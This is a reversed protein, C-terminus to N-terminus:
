SERKPSDCSMLHSLDWTRTRAVAQEKAKQLSRRTNPTTTPVLSHLLAKSMMPHVSFALLLVVTSVDVPDRLQGPLAALGDFAALTTYMKLRAFAGSVLSWSCTFISMRRASPRLTDVPPTANRSLRSVALSRKLYPKIKCNSQWHHRVDALHRSDSSLTGTSICSYLSVHNPLTREQNM